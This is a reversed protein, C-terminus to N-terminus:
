KIKHVIQKAIKESIGRVTMLEAISAVRIRKINKFKKLLRTKLVNGIGKIDDLESKTISKRKKSKQAKLAFRHAEDRIEQLLLFAKSQKDLEVVGNKSIITETARIRNSGKVISIVNLDTHDSNSIVKNAFKLQVKGGDILILSPKIKPDDYYKLRRQLVHELSGVDNGSIKRPINFLRYKNKLPGTKTFVVCSAM